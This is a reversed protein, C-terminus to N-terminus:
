RREVSRRRHRWRINRKYWWGWWTTTAPSSQLLLLKRAMIQTHKFPKGCMVAKKEKTAAVWEVSFSHRYPCLVSRYKNEGQAKWRGMIEGGGGEDCASTVRTSQRSEVRYQFTTPPCCSRTGHSLGYIRHNAEATFWLWHFTAASTVCKAEDMEQCGSRGGYWAEEMLRDMESDNLVM